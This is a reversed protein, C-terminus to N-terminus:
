AGRPLRLHDNEPRLVRLDEERLTALERTLRASWDIRLDRRLHSGGLPRVLTMRARLRVGDDLWLLLLNDTELGPIAPRQSWFDQRLGSRGPSPIERPQDRSGGHPQAHMVRIALNQHHVVIASMPLAGRDGDENLAQLGDDMLLRCARRRVQHLFFWPDEHRDDGRDQHHGVAEALGTELHAFVRPIIPQMTRVVDAYSGMRM